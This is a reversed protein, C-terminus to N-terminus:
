RYPPRDIAGKPDSVDYFGVNHKKALDVVTNRAGTAQSWAFRMSISYAGFAYDTTKPNDIDDVAQPGNMAPFEVSLLTFFSVLAPCALESPDYSDESQQTYWRLFASPETPAHAPDFVVLDFSM